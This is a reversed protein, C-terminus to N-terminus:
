NGLSKSIDAYLIYLKIVSNNFENIINLIKSSDITSFANNNAKMEAAIEKLKLSGTNLLKMTENFKSMTQFGTGDVEIKGNKYEIM